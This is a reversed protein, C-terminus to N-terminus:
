QRGMNRYFRMIEQRASDDVEGDEANNLEEALKNVMTYQAETIQHMKMFLAKYLKKSFEFEKPAYRFRPEFDRIVTYIDHYPSAYVASDVLEKLLEDPNPQIILEFRYREYAGVPANCTERFCKILLDSFVQGDMRYIYTWTLHYWFDETLLQQNFTNRANNVLNKFTISMGEPYLYKVLSLVSNNNM